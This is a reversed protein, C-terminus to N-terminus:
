LLTQLPEIKYRLETPEAGGTSEIRFEYERGSTFETGSADLVREHAVSGVTSDTLITTWAAAANDNSDVRYKLVIQQGSLLPATMINVAMLQKHSSRIGAGSKGSEAQNPNITTEVVSTAIYAASSVTRSITYGLNVPEEYAFFKYDGFRIFGYFSSSGVILATDNRPAQDFSVSMNGNSDKVIKWAGVLRNGSITADAIFYLINDWRQQFPWLTILNCSFEQFTVVTSGNYYKCVMRPMLSSVTTSTQTVGVLAGGISEIFGFSGYGWDIKESLTALSDDRNWLYVTATGDPQNCGIALYNGYECMSKITSNTPLTLAVSYSPSAASTNKIILNNSPFYMVDDKSHVLGQGTPKNTTYSNYEFTNNMNSRWVGASSSGFLYGQYSLFMLGDPTNTHGTDHSAGAVFPNDTWASTLDSPTTKGYIQVFNGSTTKGMGFLLGSVSLMRSIKYTDLTSETVADIATDWHPSLKHQWTYNNFNKILRFVGQRQDRPDNTMGNNWTDFSLTIM